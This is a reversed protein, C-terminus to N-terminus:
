LLCKVFMAVEAIFGLEREVTRKYKHINKIKYDTRYTGPGPTQPAKKLIEETMTIRPLKSFVRKKLSQMNINGVTTYKGPYPVFM